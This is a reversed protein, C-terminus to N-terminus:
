SGFREKERSLRRLLLQYVRESIDHISAPPPGPTTAVATPSPVAVAASRINASVSRQVTNLTPPSPLLPYGPMASPGQPEAFASRLHPLSLSGPSPSEPSGPQPMRYIMGGARSSPTGTHLVGSAVSSQLGIRTTTVQPPEGAASPRPEVAMRALGAPLQASHIAPFANQSSPWEAHAPPAGDPHVIQAAGESVLSREGAAPEVWSPWSPIGPSAPPRSAISRQVLPQVGTKRADSGSTVPRENAAAGEPTAAKTPPLGSSGPPRSAMARRVLPRAGSTSRLPAPLLPTSLLPLPEPRTVRPAALAGPVPVTKGDGKGGAVPQGNAAADDPTVALPRAAPTSLLPLPESRTVRPAALAGPVPVDPSVALTTEPLHAPRPIAPRALPVSSAAPRHRGPAENLKGSDRDAASETIGPNEPSRVEPASSQRAVAAARLIRPASLRTPLPQAQSHPTAVIEGAATSRVIPVPKVPSGPTESGKPANTQPSGSVSHSVVGSQQAAHGSVVIAGQAMAMQPIRVMGIDPKKQSLAMAEYAGQALPMRRVHPGGAVLGAKDTAAHLRAPVGPDNAPAQAAFPVEPAGARPYFGATHRQVLRRGEKGIHQEVHQATAQLPSDPHAAPNPGHLDGADAPGRERPNAAVRYIFNPSAMRALSGHRQQLSTLLPLRSEAFGATRAGSVGLFNTDVVGPAEAYRRIAEPLAQRAQEM